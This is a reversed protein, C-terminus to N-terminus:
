RRTCVFWAQSNLLPGMIPLPTFLRRTITMREALEGQLDRFDFGKHGYYRYPGDPGEGEFAVRGVSSGLVSRVIEV